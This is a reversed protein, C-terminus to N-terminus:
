QKRGRPRFIVISKPNRGHLWSKYLLHIFIGAALLFTFPGICAVGLITPIDDATTTAEPDGLYYDVVFCIALGLIGVCYWVMVFLFLGLLM